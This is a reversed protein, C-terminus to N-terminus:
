RGVVEREALVDRVADSLSFLLGAPEPSRHQGLHVAIRILETVLQDLSDGARDLALALGDVYQRTAVPSSILAACM